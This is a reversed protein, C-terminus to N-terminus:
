PAVRLARARPGLDKDKRLKRRGHPGRRPIRRARAQGFAYEYYGEGSRLRGSRAFWGRPQSAFDRAWPWAGRAAPGGFATASPASGLPVPRVTGTRRRAAQNRSARRGRWARCAGVRPPRGAAGRFRAPGLVSTSPGHARRAVLRASRPRAFASRGACGRQRPSPAGPRGGGVLGRGRPAPPDAFARVTGHPRPRAHPPLSLPRRDRHPRPAATGHPPPSRRPSAPPSARRRQHTGDRLRGAARRGRHPAGRSRRLATAARTPSGARSRSLM